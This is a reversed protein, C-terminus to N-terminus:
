KESEPRRKRKETEELLERAHNEILERSREVVDIFDGESCEGVRWARAAEECAENALRVVEDFSATVHDELERLKQQASTHMPDQTPMTSLYVECVILTSPAM